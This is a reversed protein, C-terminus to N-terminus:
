RTQDAAFGGAPSSEDALSRNSVPCEEMSSIPNMQSPSDTGMKRIARTQNRSPKGMNTSLSALQTIQGGIRMALRVVGIDEDVDLVDRLLVAAIKMAAQPISDEIETALQQPLWGCFRQSWSLKKRDSIQIKLNRTTLADGQHTSISCALACSQLHQIADDFRRGPPYAHSTLNSRQRSQPRTEFGDEGSALVDVDVGRDESERFFQDVFSKM